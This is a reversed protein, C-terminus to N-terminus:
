RMKQLFVLFTIEMGKKIDSGISRTIFADTSNDAEKLSTCLKYTRNRIFRRCGVHLHVSMRREFVELWKGQSTVADSPNLYASQDTGPKNNVHDKQARDYRRPRNGCDVREPLDCNM